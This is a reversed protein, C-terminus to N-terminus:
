DKEKLIDNLIFYVMNLGASAPVLIISGPERMQTKIPLEKSWIVPTNLSIHNEKLIKRMAKALPDNFTKNLTTITIEGPNLRNGTGLCTIIKSQQELAKKILLFKTTITDCADLIYDYHINFIDEINEEKLFLKKATIKVNPNITLARNKAEEVKSCGINEKTSIIQRNLNTEEITDTDILTISQFGIRVLAELAYGGVGGVGVLLIKKRQIEELTNKEILKLTREFM